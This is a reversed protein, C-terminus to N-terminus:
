WAEYKFFSLDLLDNNTSEKDQEEFVQIKYNDTREVLPENRQDAVYSLSFITSSRVNM